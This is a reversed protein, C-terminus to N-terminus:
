QLASVKEVAEISERNLTLFASFEEM